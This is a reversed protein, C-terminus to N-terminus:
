YGEKIAQAVMACYDNVIMLEVEKDQGQFGLYRESMRDLTTPDSLDWTTHNGSYESTDKEMFPEIWVSYKQARKYIKELRTM